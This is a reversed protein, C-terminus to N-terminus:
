FVWIKAKCSGSATLTIFKGDDNNRTNYVTEGSNIETVLFGKYSESLKHAIKKASTGLEVFDGGNLFNGYLLSFEFQDLFTKTAEVQSDGERFGQRIKKLSKYAM